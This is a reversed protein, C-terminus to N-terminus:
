HWRWLNRTSKSIIWIVTLAFSCFSIQFLYVWCCNWCRTWNEALKCHLCCLLKVRHMTTCVLMCHWSLIIAIRSGIRLLSRLSGPYCLGSFASTVEFKISLQFLIKQTAQSTSLKFATGSHYDWIINWQDLTVRQKPFCHGTSLNLSCCDLDQAPQSDALCPKKISQAKQGYKVTAFQWKAM